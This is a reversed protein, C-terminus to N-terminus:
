ARVRVPRTIMKSLMVSWYEAKAKLLLLERQSNILGDYFMISATKARNRFEFELEIAFLNKSNESQTINGPESTKYKTVLKCNQVENLSILSSNYKNKIKEVILIKRHIGDIGIVKNQLMEQSCFILNNAAGERSLQLFAGEKRKRALRSFFSICRFIFAAFFLLSFIITIPLM